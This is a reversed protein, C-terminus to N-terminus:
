SFLLAPWLPQRRRQVSHRPKNEEQGGPAQLQGATRQWGQTRRKGEEEQGGTTRRSTDLRCSPLTYVHCWSLARAFCLTWRLFAVECGYAKHPAWFGIDEGQGRTTRKKRPERTPFSFSAVGLERSRDPRRPQWGIETTSRGSGDNDQRERTRERKEKQKGRPTNRRMNGKQHQGTMAQGEKTRKTHENQKGERM